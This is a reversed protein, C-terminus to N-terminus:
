KKSGVVNLISNKLNETTLNADGARIRLVKNSGSNQKNYGPVTTIFYKFGAQKGLEIVRSNYHGFPFCLMDPYVGIYKYIIERSAKLDDLVRKTYTEESEFTKSDKYYERYALKGGKKLEADKIIYEHSNHTHSQIDIIGSSYMEKIEQPSLPNFDETSPSYSETRSTIIFNVAPMNYKKLLPYAYKYFSEIGDDFTMVVANPPLKEKGDMANVLKRISIANFNGDKIMKLDQEFREPTITVGSFSKKSIHHYTLVVAKDSYYIKSVNKDGMYSKELDGKISVDGNPKNDTSTDDPSLLPKKGANQVSDLNRNINSGNNEIHKVREWKNKNCSSLIILLAALVLVFYKNM